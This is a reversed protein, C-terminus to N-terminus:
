SLGAALSKQVGVVSYAGLGIADLLAIIKRYREVLRGLLWGALCAALIAGLYRADRTMAPPGNQLFLGDRILSGGSGAVLAMAILGIVDYGRKMAALAGTLAFFFVASIDFAAPLYFESRLLESKLLEMPLMLCVSQAAGGTM